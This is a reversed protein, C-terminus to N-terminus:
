AAAGLATRLYEREEEIFSKIARLKAQAQNRTIGRREACERVTMEMVWREEFLIALELGESPSRRKLMERVVLSCKDYAIREEVQQVPAYDPIHEMSFNREEGDDNRIFSPFPGPVYVRSAWDESSVYSEREKATRAGHYVRCVPRRANDRIQSFVSNRLYTCIHSLTVNKGQEFSSRLADRRIFNMLFHQIHDEIQQTQRSVAFRQSGLYQTMKKMLKPYRAAVWKATENQHRRPKAPVSVASIVDAKKVRIKPARVIVAVKPAFETPKERPLPLSTVSTVGSVERSAQAGAFSLGWVDDHAPASRKTQIVLYPSKGCYGERLSRFAFGIIRKPDDAKTEVPWPPNTLDVGALVAVQQCVEDRSVGVCPEHDTM